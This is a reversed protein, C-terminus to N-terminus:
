RVRGGAARVAREAETVRARAAEVRERYAASPVRGGTVLTQWDGSGQVEAAELAARAAALEAEASRLQDRQEAQERAREAALNEAERRVADARAEADRQQTPSPGQPLEIPTVDTATAGPPPADTFTVNGEADIVRYVREGANATSSATLALFLMLALTLVLAIPIAPPIAPSPAVTANTPISM